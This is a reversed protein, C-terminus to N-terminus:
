KNVYHEVYDNVFNLSHFISERELITKSLKYIFIATAYYFFQIGHNKYELHHYKRLFCILLPCITLCIFSTLCNEFLKGYRYYIMFNINSAHTDVCLYNHFEALYLYTGCFRLLITELYIIYTFVRFM